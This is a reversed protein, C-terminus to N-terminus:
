VRVSQLRYATERYEQSGAPEAEAEAEDETATEPEPEPEPEPRLSASHLNAARCTQLKAYPQMM